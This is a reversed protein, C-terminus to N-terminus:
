IGAMCNWDKVFKKKEDEIWFRQKNSSARDKKKIKKTSKNTAKRSKKTSKQNLELEIDFDEDSSDDSTESSVIYEKYDIGDDDYYGCRGEEPQKYEYGWKRAIKQQQELEKRRIEEFEEETCQIVNVKAAKIPDYKYEQFAKLHYILEYPEWSYQYSGDLRKWQMLWKRCVYGDDEEIWLDNLVDVAELLELPM